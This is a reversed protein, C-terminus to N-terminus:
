DILASPFRGSEIEVEEVWSQGMLRGISQCQKKGRMELRMGTIGGEGEFTRGKLCDVLRDM